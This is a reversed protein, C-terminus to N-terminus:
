RRLTIVLDGHTVLMEYDRFSNINLNYWFEKAEDLRCSISEPVYFITVYKDGNCERSEPYIYKYEEGYNFEVIKDELELENTSFNYTIKVLLSEYNNLKITHKKM